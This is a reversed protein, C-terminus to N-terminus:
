IELNILRYEFPIHIYYINQLPRIGFAYHGISLASKGETHLKADETKLRGGEIRKQM